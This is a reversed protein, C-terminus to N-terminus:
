ISYKEEINENTLYFWLFISIGDISEIKIKDESINTIIGSNQKDYFYVYNKAILREKYNTDYGEGYFTQLLNLYECFKYLDLKKSLQLAALKQFVYDYYRKEVFGCCLYWNIIDIIDKILENNLLNKKMIDKIPNDSHLAQLSEFYLDILYEFLYFNNKKFFINIIALIEYKNEIIKKLQKMLNIKEKIFEIMENKNEFKPIKGKNFIDLLKIFNEKNIKPYLLLNSEKNFIFISEIISSSNINKNLLIENNNKSLNIINENIKVENIQNNEINHIEEEKIDM